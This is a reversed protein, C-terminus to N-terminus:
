GSAAPIIYNEDEVLDEFHTKSVASERTTGVRSAHNGIVMATSIYKSWGIYLL